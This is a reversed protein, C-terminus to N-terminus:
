ARKRGYLMSVLDTLEAKLTRYEFYTFAMMWFCLLLAVAYGESFGHNTHEYLYYTMYIGCLGMLAGLAPKQGERRMLGLALLGMMNWYYMNTTLWVFVLLPGLTFAGIEDTRLLLVVVMLTFLIQFFKFGIEHDGIDVDPRQQKMEAPFLWHVAFESASSEEVQLYVTKLSHQINYFKEHVAADIRRKYDSWV